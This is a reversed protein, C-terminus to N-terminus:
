HNSLKSMVDDLINADKIKVDKFRYKFGEPDICELLFGLIYAAESYHKIYHEDANKREAEKKLNIYVSGLADFIHESKRKSIINEEENNIISSTAMPPLTYKNDINTSKNNNNFHDEIINKLNKQVSIDKNINEIKSWLSTPLSVMKKLAPDSTKRGAGERKGGWSM